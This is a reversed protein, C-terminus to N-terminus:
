HGREFNFNEGSDMAAGLGAIAQRYVEEMRLGVVEWTYQQRVMDRGQAGMRELGEQDTLLKRIGEGLRVPNGDLVAGSASEQVLHAAGVEPTVVVPCGAAMAELVVNGFNESHSPLVLMLARSLLASKEEGYVPGVFAIREIVGSGTAQAELAPRLGEEDNGAIVLRCEPILSLAAILRELGKKWNIRGVFLIFRDPGVERVVDSRDIGNPVICSIRIPLGLARAEEEEIRSTFHVNAAGHINGREVLAIWARKLLTSKRRILERVLMGRPALVYPVGQSRAVRAAAWTPWLFVSHTHVIDFGSLHKRLAARMQPSWYLRRLAPVPFYWVKVGDFDVPVGLPVKSETEGDVNTTFVHVDHGSAALAKCLGHVSAIPGGYRVAPLYTPVVHLIRM